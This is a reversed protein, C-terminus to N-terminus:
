KQEIKMALLGFSAPSKKKQYVSFINIPMFLEVLVQGGSLLDFFLLGQSQCLGKIMEYREKWQEAATEPPEDQQHEDDEASVGDRSM